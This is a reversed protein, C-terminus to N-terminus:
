FLYNSQSAIAHIYKIIYTMLEQPLYHFLYVKNKALFLLVTPIVTPYLKLQLITINPATIVISTEYDFVGAHLCTLRATEGLLKYHIGDSINYLFIM